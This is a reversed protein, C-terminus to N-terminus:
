SHRTLNEEHGETMTKEIQEGSLGSAAVVEGAVEFHRHSIDPGGLVALDIGLEGLQHGLSEDRLRPRTGPTALQVPGRRGSYLGQSGPHAVGLGVVRHAELCQQPDEAQTRGVSSAM